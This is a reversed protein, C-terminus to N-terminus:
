LPYTVEKIHKQALDACTKMNNTRKSVAVKNLAGVMEQAHQMTLLYPWWPEPLWLHIKCYVFAVRPLTIDVQLADTWVPKGCVFFDLSKSHASCPQVWTTYTHTM